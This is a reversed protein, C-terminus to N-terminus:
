FPQNPPSLNKSQEISGRVASTHRGATTSLRDQHGTQACAVLCIRLTTHSFWLHLDASERGKSGTLILRMLPNDRIRSMSGKDLGRVVESDLQVANGARSRIVLDVNGRNAPQDVGVGNKKDPGRRVERM